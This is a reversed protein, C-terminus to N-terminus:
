FVFLCLLKKLEHSVGSRTSYEFFRVLLCEEFRGQFSICGSDLKSEFIMSVIVRILSFIATNAGIALALTVVGIITFGPTKALTRLAYKLDSIM